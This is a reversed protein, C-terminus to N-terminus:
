TDDGDGALDVRETIECPPSLEAATYIDKVRALMERLEYKTQLYYDQLDSPAGVADMGLERAIHLARYLHYGQSVIIVKEAGFMEKARYLSEYTSYGDHDLFIDESPVGAEVAQSKMAGVENYDGSHDGSMLLPVAHGAEAAALYLETGVVIRDYLMATPTGDARVGAGLILICDYDETAWKDSFEGVTFFRDAYVDKMCATVSGILLLLSAGAVGLAVASKWLPGRVTRWLSLLSRRLSGKEKKPPVKPEKTKKM